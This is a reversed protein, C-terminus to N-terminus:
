SWLLPAWGRQRALALGAPSFIGFPPRYHRPARGTTEAHTAHGRDLDDVLERPTLRLQVRHTGGHLAVAHGAAVIEAALTPARQVQEGVLFFTAHAGVAALADLVAPTGRPHPGDDFTLAVRGAASAAPLTRPIGLARCLPPALPALAPLSWAAGAALAAGTATAAHRRM